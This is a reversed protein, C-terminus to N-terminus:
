KAWNLLNERYSNVEGFNISWFIYLTRVELEQQKEPLIVFLINTEM